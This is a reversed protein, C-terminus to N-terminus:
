DTVTVTKGSEGPFDEFLATALQQVVATASGSETARRASGEWAVTNSEREVLSVQLETVFEGDSKTGGVPMNVGAGVGGSRGYSGGGVGVSFASRKPAAPQISRTVGVVAKLAATDGPIPDFGIGKLKAAIINSYSSFALSDASGSAAAEINIAQPTIAKDLHFRTVETGRTGSAACAALMALLAVTTMRVIFNTM